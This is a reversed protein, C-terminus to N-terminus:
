QITVLLKGMGANDNDDYIRFAIVHEGPSLDDSVWVFAESKSDIIGDAPFVPKWVGTDVSIEAQNLTSTPDVVNIAVRVRNRDMGQQVMAVDPPTNDITFPQSELDSSLAMNSPNSPADSAIVRVVYTGDPLTDSDISYFTDEVNRELLKWTRETDGRYYLDYSLFDQNKDTASWQFSRAGRQVV